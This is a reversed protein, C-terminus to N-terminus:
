PRFLGRVGFLASVELEPLDYYAAVRDVLDPTGFVFPTCDHLGGPIRSLIRETGTTARGSAQEILLAIPACEYALRLRGQQYGDRSDAPYLFIGGRNLIRHTEAVLSAIWRMNFNTDRPGLAGALCDDIFARVPKAWHRYNSTNIAFEFAQEPIRVRGVERFVRDRADLVYHIVGDRFTVMLATQPGYIFYGSAILEEGSRLFSREADEKAEFVGFITGVSINVDINSSGDLPDIAVALSGRSDLEVPAAREESAYWRVDSRALAEAFKQDAFVDLAKQIDGSANAGISAGFNGTLPGAAIHAALTAATKCLAQMVPQMYPPVCNIEIAQVQTM